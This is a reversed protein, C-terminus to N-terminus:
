SGAIDGEHNFKEGKFGQDKFMKSNKSFILDLYGRKTSSLLHMIKFIKRLFGDIINSIKSSRQQHVQVLIRKFHLASM